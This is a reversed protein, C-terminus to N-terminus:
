PSAELITTAPKHKCSSPSLTRNERPLVQQQKTHCLNTYNSRIVASAAVFQALFTGSRSLNGHRIWFDWGLLRGFPIRLKKENTLLPCQLKTLKNKCNSSSEYENKLMRLDVLLYFPFYNTISAIRLLLLQFCLINSRTQKLPCHLIWLFPQKCTKLHAYQRKLLLSPFCTHKAKTSKLRIRLKM